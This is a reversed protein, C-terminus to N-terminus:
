PNRRVAEVVIPSHVSRLAFTTRSFATNVRIDVLGLLRGSLSYVVAYDAMLHWAAPIFIKETAVFCRYDHLVNGGTADRLAPVSVATAASFRASHFKLMNVANASGLNIAHGGGKITDFVVPISKSKLLNFMSINYNFLPGMSFDNDGDCMRVEMGLKRLTDANKNVFTPPYYNNNFYDRDSGFIGTPISQDFQQQSLTDWNVLAAIFTGVNGFLEYHKFALMMAGFGGMSVGNVARHARDPMTKFLSDIHPVLENVISTECRVRGDKSDASFTNGRSNVFVMIMPIVANSTINSQLTSALAVNGWENGGMGHLSYVVPYRTTGASDYGPPLYIVYGITTKNAASYYTLHRCGAPLTGNPNNWPQSTDAVLTGAFCLLSAM